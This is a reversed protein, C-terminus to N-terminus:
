KATGLLAFGREPLEVLLKNAEYQIRQGSGLWNGLSESHLESLLVTAIQPRDTRNFLVLAFEGDYERTYGFVSATDDAYITRYDGRRLTPHNRRLAIMQKYFERTGDDWQTKDWIMAHRNHPDRAGEMGIEDGYYVCPTGPYTMQFLVAQGAKRWDGGFATRTREIDHSAMMNFMVPTVSTPYDSRIQALTADFQTPSIQETGFFQLVSARWRYNMVADFEDGRLWDTANGWMEGVLYARPDTEKVTSRLAKWFRHDVEDAADLRWGDIGYERIWCRAVDLL